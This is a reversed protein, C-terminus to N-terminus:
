RAKMVNQFFDDTCHSGLLSSCCWENVPLDSAAEAILEEERSKQRPTTDDDRLEHPLPVPHMGNSAERTLRISYIIHEVALLSRMALETLVQLMAPLAFIIM